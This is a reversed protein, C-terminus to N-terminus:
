LLRTLEPRLRQLADSAPAHERMFDFDAFEFGPGVTAATYCFGGCPEAAQWWGREVVHRPVTTASAADLDVAVVHDLSPPM